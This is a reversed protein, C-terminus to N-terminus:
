KFDGKVHSNENSNYSRRRHQGNEQASSSKQGVLSISTLSRGPMRNASLGNQNRSNPNTNSSAPLSLLSNSLETKKMMQNPHRPNQSKEKNAKDFLNQLGPSMKAEGNRINSQRKPDQAPKLPNPVKNPNLHPFNMYLNNLDYTPSPKVGPGTLIAGNQIVSKIVPAPGTPKAAEPATSTATKGDNKQRWQEVPASKDHENSKDRWSMTRSTKAEAPQNNVQKNGMSEIFDFINDGFVNPIEKLIPLKPKTETPNKGVVSVKGNGCVETPKAKDTRYGQLMKQLNPPENEKTMSEDHNNKINNNNNNDNSDFLTVGDNSEETKNIKEILKQHHRPDASHLM